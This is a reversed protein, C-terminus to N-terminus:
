SVFRYIHCLVCNQALVGLNYVKRSIIHVSCFHGRVFTDCEFDFINEVGVLSKIHTLIRSRDWISLPTRDYHGGCWSGVFVADIGGTGNQWM